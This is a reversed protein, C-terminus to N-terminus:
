PYLFATKNLKNKLIFYCGSPPSLTIAFNLKIVIYMSTGQTPLAEQIEFM